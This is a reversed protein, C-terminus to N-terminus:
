HSHLLRYRNNFSITLWSFPGVASDLSSRVESFRWPLLFGILLNVVLPQCRWHWHTSPLVEQSGRLFKFSDFGMSNAWYASAWWRKSSGANTHHAFSAKFRLLRMMLFILLLYQCRVWLYPIRKGFDMCSANCNSSSFPLERQCSAMWFSSLFTCTAKLNRSSPSAIGTAWLFNWTM